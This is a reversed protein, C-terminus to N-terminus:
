AAKNPWVKHNPAQKCKGMCLSKEVVTNTIKKDKIYDEVDKVTKEPRYRSCSRGHCIKIICDKKVIKAIIKKDM